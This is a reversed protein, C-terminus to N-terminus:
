CLGQLGGLHRSSMLTLGGRRGGGGGKKIDVHFNETRFIMAMPKLLMRDGSAFHYDKTHVPTDFLNTMTKM